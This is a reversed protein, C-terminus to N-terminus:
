DCRNQPLSNHIHTAAIAAQGYATAIQSLGSAVDGIAYLGPITTHQYGDTAICDCDKLEAGLQKALESRAYFSLASYISDFQEPAKHLCLASITNNKIIVKTVPETIIRINAQQLQFYDEQEIELPSGLTLLTVHKTYTRLFLSEKVAHKTHGIVAVKKDIVEYADCIM